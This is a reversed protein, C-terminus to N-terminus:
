GGRGFLKAIGGPGQKGSAAIVAATGAARLLSAKEAKFGALIAPILVQPPTTVTWKGKSNKFVVRGQEGTMKQRALDGAAAGAFAAGALLALKTVTKILRVKSV